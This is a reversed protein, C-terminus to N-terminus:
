PRAPKLSRTGRPGAARAASIETACRGMVRWHVQHTLSCTESVMSGAPKSDPAHHMRGRSRSRSRGSPSSANHRGRAPFPSRVMDVLNHLSIKRMGGHRSVSMSIRSDLIDSILNLLDTGAGHITRSSSARVQSYSKFRRSKEGPQHCPCSVANLPRPPLEHSMNALFELSPHSTLALDPPRIRCRPRRGDIEQNKVSRSSMASRWSHANQSSHENTTAAREAAGQLDGALKSRVDSLCSKPRAHHSRGSNLVIRYPRSRERFM